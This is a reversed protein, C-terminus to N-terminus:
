IKKRMAAILAEMDRLLPKFEKFNLYMSHDYKPEQLFINTRKSKELKYHIYVEFARAFLEARRVWYDGEGADKDKLVKLVRKYYTSHEKGIKAWIIKALLNEMLGEPTKAKMLKLDVDTRTSFDGSFSVPAAKVGSCCIFDLAHGYEHALAGIGGGRLLEKLRSYGAARFKVKVPRSYRTLNILREMPHYTAAASGRGRAGFAITLVGNFSIQRPKFGLLDALDFLSLGLGAVYNIRDQHNLWNGFEIGKLGYHKVLFFINSHDYDKPIPKGKRTAKNDKTFAIDPKNKDWYKDARGGEPVDGKDVIKGLDKKGKGAKPFTKILDERKDTIQLEFRQVNGAKTIVELLKTYIRFVAANEAASCRGAVAVMTASVEDLFDQVDKKSHTGSFRLYKDVVRRVRDNM